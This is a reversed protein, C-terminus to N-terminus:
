LSKHSPIAFIAAKIEEKTFPRLLALQQSSNLCPGMAIIEEEIPTSTIAPTGLSKEYYTTFHEIVKDYEWTWSGDEEKISSIRNHHYAQKMKAFFYKDNTDGLNLWDDKTKQVLFSELRTQWLHYDNVLRKEEEYFNEQFRHEQLQM